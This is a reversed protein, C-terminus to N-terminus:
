QDQADDGAPHQFCLHYGDPDRVSLQRMGYHTTAPPKVDCKGRLGAYAADVDDCRFYLAFDDRGLAPEPQPPRKDREYKTNLMITAGGHKLMAWDFLPGPESTAVLEYGLVARYFAVSTPMDFVQLLPAVGHLNHIGM